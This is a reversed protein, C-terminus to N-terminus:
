FGIRVQAVGLGDFGSRMMGFASVVMRRSMTLLIKMVKAQYPLRLSVSSLSLVLQGRMRMMRVEHPTAKKSYLKMIGALRMPLWILPPGKESMCSLIRASHMERVTKVMMTAVTKLLSGMRQFWKTLKRKMMRATM